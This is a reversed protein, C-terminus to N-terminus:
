KLSAIKTPFSNMRVSVLDMKPGAEARPYSRDISLLVKFQHAEKTYILGGQPKRPCKRIVMVEPFSGIIDCVGYIGDRAMM